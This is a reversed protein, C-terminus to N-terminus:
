VVSTILGDANYSITKGDNSVFQGPTVAPTVQSIQTILGKNNVTVSFRGLRYTGAVGPSDALSVIYTGSGISTEVVSISDVGVIAKVISGGPPIYGTVLGFRNIQLGLYDGAEIGSNSMGIQLPDDLSEGSGLVRIPPDLAQAIIGGGAAESLALVLPDNATGCGTVTIGSTGRITPSVLLGAASGSLWNCARPDIPTSGTTQEEDVSRAPACCENPTYAPVPSQGVATICGATFTITSYSGDPIQYARPSVAMCEGDYSLTVNGVCVEFPDCARPPVEPETPPCNKRPTQICESM